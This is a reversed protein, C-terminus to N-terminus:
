SNIKIKSNNIFSRMFGAAAIGTLAIVFPIYNSENSLSSRFSDNILMKYSFHIFMYLSVLFILAFGYAYIILLIKEAFTNTSTSSSVYAVMEEKTEVTIEEVIHSTQSDILELIRKSLNTEKTLKDDNTILGDISDSRLKVFERKLLTLKNHFESTNNSKSYDDLKVIVAELKNKGILNRIDIKNKEEM